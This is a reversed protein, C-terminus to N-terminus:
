SHHTGNEESHAGEKNRIKTKYGIGPQVNLEELLFYNREDHLEKVIESSKDNVDGFSIADTPCSQQCATKIRGDALPREEIKAELKGAQIRQVCFTCKEMVGRFRVTVDPNLVLKGLDDSLNYDFRSDNAYNFWNFRRVKYPCNNACYRTGVCRNYIQQNLGESSHMTALVPCVSECPAHDCQQCLMPQFVVEPNEDFNEESADSKYYRDIRIWHMERRRLVEDKGVVPVNNEVQCGVVCANCGICSNLDISMGWHHGTKDRDPWLSFMEHEHRHNGAAPDMTYEALTAEKVLPRGETKYYTQTQALESKEGTRKLSTAKAVMQVSSNLWSNLPYANQGVGDATKGAKTRGYGVAISITGYTQGPQIHVPLTIVGNDTTIKVIDDSRKDSNFKIGLEEAQKRSICAYNDWTVKTIPDPMEQLWPNNALSGDLLSLKQYFTVEVDSSLASARVALKSAAANLDGSATATSAPSAKATYIGKRIVDQWFDTFTLFETQTPYVNENWTSKMVDLFSTSNDAWVLLSDEMSRTNYVPAITPQAISMYGNVPEFDGWSELFYNPPAIAWANSATEDAKNSMAITVPVKAWAANFKDADFFTYSPNVGYTILVDVKGAEMEKVLNMMEADSGQQQNSHNTLDITTGYNRLLSNIGNIFQQMNSDNSGCVVLSKGKHSWLWDATKGVMETNIGSADNSITTAGAKKAILNYLAIVTAGELSPKVQVRYDANSGTLSLGAEFHVHKNMKTNEASVKRRSIFSKTYQLPSIWTGLFDAGFSVVVDAKDFIYNPVVRKGFDKENATLIGDYSVADYTVHKATPYKKTFKSIVSKSSPGTITSTLVRINGGKAVTEALKAKVKADLETWGAKNGKIMPNKLNGSDYLNLIAGQGNASLAGRFLPSEPNGELKIPRGERTKVLVPVSQSNTNITSAYYNPIGPTIEEPKILYPISKKIPTENCAALAVASVGFGMAKLFDRRPTKSDSTVPGFADELPLTEAFEDNQLKKLDKSESLDGFGQWYTNNTKQM